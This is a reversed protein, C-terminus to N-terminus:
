PRGVGLAKEATERIHRESSDKRTDRLHAYIRNAQSQKGNAALQEALLLCHRTAETREWGEASDASELLADTASAEGLNALAWAATRRVDRGQEDLAKKLAAASDTDQL